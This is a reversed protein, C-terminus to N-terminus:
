VENRVSEVHDVARAIKRALLDRERARSLRHLMMFLRFCNVVRRLETRGPVSVGRPEAEQAYADFFRDAVPPTFGDVLYALDYLASGFAAQEWDIPCVRVPSPSTDILINCPRYHGHVLTPPQSVMLDVLEDYGHLARALREGLVGSVRSVHHVALPAKSRFFDADHRVLFDCARLRSSQHAFHGHLRGIWAAGALWHEISCFRAEQGDVHELFLWFPGAPENWVSGYYRATGLEGAGVLDRYTRRERERRQPADDKPFHSCGLNKFFVAVDEGSALRVTLREAEYSSAADCRARQVAAIAVPRGLAASLGRALCAALEDRDQVASIM